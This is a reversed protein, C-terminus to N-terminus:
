GGTVIRKGRRHSKSVYGWIPHGMCLYESSIWQGVGLYDLDHIVIRRTFRGERISGPHGFCLRCKASSYCSGVLFCMIGLFLCWSLPLVHVVVPSLQTPVYVVGVMQLHQLGIWPCAFERSPLYTRSSTPEKSHPIFMKAASSIQQLVLVCPTFMNWHEYQM